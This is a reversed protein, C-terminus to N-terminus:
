MKILHLVKYLSKKFNYIKLNMQKNKSKIYKNNNKTNNLNYLDNAILM